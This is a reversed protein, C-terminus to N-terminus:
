KGLWARVTGRSVGLETALTYESLHAVGDAGVYAIMEAKAEAAAREHHQWAMRLARLQRVTRQYDNPAAAPDAPLDM